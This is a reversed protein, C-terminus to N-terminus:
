SLRPERRAAAKSVTAVYAFRRGNEAAPDEEVVVVSGAPADAVARESAGSVADMAFQRNRGDAGTIRLALRCARGEMVDPAEDLVVIEASSPCAPSFARVVVLFDNQFTLLTWPMARPLVRGSRKDPM